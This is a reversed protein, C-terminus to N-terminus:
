KGEKFLEDVLQKYQEGTIKKQTVAKKLFELTFLQKIREENPEYGDCPSCCYVGDDPDSDDICDNMKLPKLTFTNSAEEVVKEFPKEFQVWFAPPMDKLSGFFSELFVKMNM